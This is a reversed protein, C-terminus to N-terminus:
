KNLFTVFESVRFVPLTQEIWAFVQAFYCILRNKPTQDCLIGIRAQRMRVFVQEANTQSSILNVSCLTHIYYVSLLWVGGM